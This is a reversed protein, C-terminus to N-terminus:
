KLLYNAKAIIYKLYWYFSERYRGHKKLCKSYFEMEKYNAPRQLPTSQWPTKEEYSQYLNINFDNTKGCIPWALSWPKPNAAFHLFIISPEEEKTPEICNFSRDLFFTKKNLIVNLADQDPYQFLNPNNSVLSIIKDLIDLQLWKQINIALVGSNFYVPNALNLADIRKKQLWKLDPVAAIIHKNLNLDFLKDANKLCVIDADFYFLTSVNKLIIPLILRFYM